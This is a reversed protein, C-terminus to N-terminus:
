WCRHLDIYFKKDYNPFWRQLSNLFEFPLIGLAKFLCGGFTVILVDKDVGNLELLSESMYLNSLYFILIADHIWVTRIHSSGSWMNKGFFVFCYM